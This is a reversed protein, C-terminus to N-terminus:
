IEQFWHFENNCIEFVTKKPILEIAESELGKKIFLIPKEPDKFDVNEIPFENSAGACFKIVDVINSGNYRIKKSHVVSTGLIEEPSMRVYLKECNYTSPIEITKGSLIDKCEQKTLEIIHKM